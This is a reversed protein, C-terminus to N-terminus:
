PGRPRRFFLGAAGRIDVGLGLFFSILLLLAGVWQIGHLSEGLVLLGGLAGLLPQLFLSLAASAVSVRQLAQIWLLYCVATGLPGLWLLAFLSRAWRVPDGSPALGGWLAGSGVLGALTGYVCLGAVGFLIARGFIAVANWGRLLLMRSSVSYTAEGLLSFVLIANGMLRDWGLEGRLVPVGTLLFLGLFAAIWVGIGPAKEQSQRGRLVIWGLGVTFLPEMSVILANDVASSRLLGELQLVPSFCFPALGAAALWPLDRRGEVPVTKFSRRRDPSAALLLFFVLGAASYRLFGVQLPAFSELAWKSMVPHLAWVFNAFFLIWSPHRM